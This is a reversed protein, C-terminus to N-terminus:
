EKGQAGQAIDSRSAGNTCFFPEDDRGLAQLVEQVFYLLSLTHSTWQFYFTLWKTCFNCSSQNSSKCVNIHCKLGRLKYHCIVFLCVIVHQKTFHVSPPAIPGEDQKIMPFSICGCQSALTSAPQGTRKKWGQWAQLPLSQFVCRNGQWGACETSVEVSSLFSCILEPFFRRGRNM